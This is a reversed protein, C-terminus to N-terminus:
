CPFEPPLPATGLAEISVRRVNPDPTFEFRVDWRDVPLWGGALNAWEVFVPGDAELLDPWGADILVAELNAETATEPIRYLDAHYVTVDASRHVNVLTYTPSPVTGEVGLGRCAARALTSKGAGLEGYLAVFIGDPGAARGVCEGWAELQTETLLVGSRSPTSPRM